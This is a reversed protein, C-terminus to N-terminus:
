EPKGPNGMQEFVERVNLGAGAPQPGRQDGDTPQSAINKGGVKKPAVWIYGGIRPAPEKIQPAKVKPRFSPDDPGTPSVVSDPQSRRVPVASDSKTPLSKLPGDDVGTGESGEGAPQKDKPGGESGTEKKPPPDKDAPPDKQENKPKQDSQNGSSNNESTPEPADNGDHKPQATTTIDVEDLVVADDDGGESYTEVTNAGLKDSTIRVYNTMGNPYYAEERVIYLDGHDWGVYSFRGDAEIFMLEDGHHFATPNPGQSREILNDWILQQQEHNPGPGTGAALERSGIAPAANGVPGNTQGGGGLAFSVPLDDVAVNVVIGRAAPDIRANNLTAIDSPVSTLESITTDATLFEGEVANAISSSLTLSSLHKGRVPYAGTMQASSKKINLPVSKPVQNLPKFPNARIVSASIRVGRPLQQYAGSSAVWPNRPGGASPKGSSGTPLDPRPRAWGPSRSPPSYAPQQPRHATPAAPRRPPLHAKNFSPTPKRSPTVPMSKPKAPAAKKPLSHPLASTGSKARVPAKYQAQLLTSSFVLLNVVSLFLFKKM